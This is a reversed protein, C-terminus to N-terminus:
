HSLDRLSKERLIQVYIDIEKNETTTKRQEKIKDEATKNFILIKSLAFRTRKKEVKCTCTYTKYTQIFVYPIAIYVHIYTCTHASCVVPCHVM